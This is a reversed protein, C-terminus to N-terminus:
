RKMKMKMMMMKKMMIMMMVTTTAMTVMMIVETVIVQGTTDDDGVSIVGGGGGGNCNSDGDVCRRRGGESDCDGNVDDDFPCSMVIVAVVMLVMVVTLSAHVNLLRSVPLLSCSVSPGTSATHVMAMSNRGGTTTMLTAWPSKRDFVLM